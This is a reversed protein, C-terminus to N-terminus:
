PNIGFNLRFANPQVLKGGLDLAQGDRRREYLDDLRAGSFVM